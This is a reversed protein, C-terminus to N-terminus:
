CIFQTLDLASKVVKNTELRHSSSKKLEETEFRFFDWSIKIHENLPYVLDLPFCFCVKWLIRYSLQSLQSVTLINKFAAAVAAACINPVELGQLNLKTTM